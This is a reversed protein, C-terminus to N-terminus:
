CPTIAGSRPVGLSERPLTSEFPPMMFSANFPAFILMTHQFNVVGVRVYRIQTFNTPDTADVVQGGAGLYDLQINSTSFDHLVPSGDGGGSTSFVATRAIAPDDIPCVVAMRAGRRTAEGLSNMVFLLRGLELVSLMVLMALTAIIAFEVTTIGQQKQM